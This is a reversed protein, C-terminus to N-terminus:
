CLLQLLRYPKSTLTQMQTPKRKGLFFHFFQTDVFMWSKPNSLTFIQLCSNPSHTVKCNQWSTLDLCTDPSYGTSFHSNMNQLNPANLNHSGSMRVLVLNHKEWLRWHESAHLCNGHWWTLPKQYILLQGNPSDWHSHSSELPSVGERMYFCSFPKRLYPLALTQPPPSYKNSSKRPM